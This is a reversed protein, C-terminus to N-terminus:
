FDLTLKWIEERTIQCQNIFLISKSRCCVSGYFHISGYFRITNSSRLPSWACVVYTACPAVATILLVTPRNSVSSTSPHPSFPPSMSSRVRCWRSSQYSPHLPRDQRPSLTSTVASPAAVLCLLLDRHTPMSSM